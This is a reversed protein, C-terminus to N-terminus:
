GVGCTSQQLKSTRHSAGRRRISLKSGSLTGGPMSDRRALTHENVTQVSCHEIGPVKLTMRNLLVCCSSERAGSDCARISRASHTSTLQASTLPSPVLGLALFLRVAPWLLLCRCHLESTAPTSSTPSPRSGAVGLWGESSQVHKAYFVAGILLRRVWISMQVATSTWDLSRWKKPDARDVLSTSAFSGRGHLLRVQCTACVPGDCDACPNTVTYAACDGCCVLECDVEM